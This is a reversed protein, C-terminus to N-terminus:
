PRWKKDQENSERVRFVTIKKVLSKPLPKDLPFQISGRAYSYKKLEKAFARVASPTPYFGIHKKFVAFMVLIRRGSFAPMSWKIEERAKPAASRVTARMERLKKQAQKPASNIYESINKPRKASNM